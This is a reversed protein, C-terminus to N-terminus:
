RKLDANRTRSKYIIALGVRWFIPLDNTFDYLFCLFDMIKLVKEMGPMDKRPLRILSKDYNPNVGKAM